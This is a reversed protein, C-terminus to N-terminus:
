KLSVNNFGRRLFGVSLMLIREFKWGIEFKINMDLSVLFIIVDWNILWM